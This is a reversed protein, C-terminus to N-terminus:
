FGEGRRGHLLLLLRGVAHTDVEIHAEGERILLLLLLL